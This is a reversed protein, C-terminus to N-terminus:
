NSQSDLLLDVRRYKEHTAYLRKLATLPLEGPLLDVGGGISGGKYSGKETGVESAYAITLCRRILPPLFNQVWQWRGSGRSWEREEVYATAAVIEGDFDRILYDIKPCDARAATFAKWQLNFVDAFLVQQPDMLIHRRMTYDLWPITKGRSKYRRNDGMEWDDQIGYCVFFFHSESDYSFGYAKRIPRNQVRGLYEYADQQEPLVWGPLNVYSKWSGCSLSLACQSDGNDADPSHLICSLEFM